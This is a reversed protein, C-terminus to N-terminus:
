LIYTSNFIRLQNVYKYAQKHYPIFLFSCMKASDRYTFVRTACLQTKANKFIIIHMLTTIKKPLSLIIINSTIFNQMNIVFIVKKNVNCFGLAFM